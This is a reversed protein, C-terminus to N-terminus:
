AVSEVKKRLFIAIILAFFASIKIYYVLSMSFELAPSTFRTAFNLIDSYGKESL